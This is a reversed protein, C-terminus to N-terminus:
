RAQILKGNEMRAPAYGESPSSGLDYHNNLLLVAVLAGCSVIFFWRWPAGRWNEWKLPNLGKFLLWIGYAVIPLAFCELIFPLLRIM